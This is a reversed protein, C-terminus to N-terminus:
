SGAQTQDMRKSLVAREHQAAKGLREFMGVTKNFNEKGPSVQVNELSVFLWRGTRALLDVEPHWERSSL